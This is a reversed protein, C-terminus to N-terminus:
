HLWTCVKHHLGEEIHKENSWSIEYNDVVTEVGNREYTNRRTDIM